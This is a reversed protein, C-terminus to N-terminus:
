KREDEKEEANFEPVLEAKVTFYKLNDKNADAVTVELEEPYDYDSHTDAMYQSAAHQADKAYVEQADEITEAWDEDFVYWLPKCRHRMIGTRMNGFENCTPCKKYDIESM